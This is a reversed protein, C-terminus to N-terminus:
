RAGPGTAPLETGEPVLLWNRWAADPVVHPRRVPGGGTLNWTEYGVPGVIAEIEEPRGAALVECLVVPRHRALTDRAGALVDHETTETDIKILDVRALARETVVADITTVELEDGVIDTSKGEVFRRDLGSSTPLGDTRHWFAQTGPTRGVARGEVQVRSLLNLDLNRQLRERAAALPEFAIVTAEPAALAALLAYYGSFAGVDLVVPAPMREALRFWLESAEPEHGRWGRWYVRNAVRDGGHMRLRGGGPLDVAFRAQRPLRGALHGPDVGLRTALRGTATALRNVRPDRVARRVMGSM